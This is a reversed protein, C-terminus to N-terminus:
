VIPQGNLDYGPSIDQLLQKFYAQDVFKYYGEYTTDEFRFCAQRVEEM